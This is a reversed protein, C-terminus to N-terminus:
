LPHMPPYVWFHDVYVCMCSLSSLDHEAKASTCSVLICVLLIRVTWPLLWRSPSPTDAETCAPICGGEPGLGPCWEQAKAHVGVGLAQAGEWAQVEGPCVGRPRPRSVGGHVSHCVPTFVYGECTIILLM